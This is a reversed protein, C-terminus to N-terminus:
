APRREELADLLADPVALDGTGVGVSLDRKYTGHYDSGGTAALGHRAALGRLTDRDRRSYRGYECEIADLGAAALRGVFADLEAAELDLSFPHALSTVAASAHALEISEEIELRHREVYAPRGKALWRDFADDISTADGHRVLVAAVHPRGVTGHGSEALVEDITIAVGNARLVAVIRENRENRAADLEGLRDQLPGPGGELFYVLLHMTGPARGALECSLECAPVLRVGLREAAAQAEPLHRLTDHDTLAVASLGARSALEVVTTPTDTGDSVTSHTHLDIM